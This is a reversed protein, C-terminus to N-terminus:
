LCCLCYHQFSLVCVLRINSGTERCLDSNLEVHIVDTLLYGLLVCSRENILFCIVQFKTFLRTSYLQYVLARQRDSLELMNIFSFLFTFVCIFDFM